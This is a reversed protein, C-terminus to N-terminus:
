RTLTYRDQYICVFVPGKFTTFNNNFASISFLEAVALPAKIDEAYGVADFSYTPEKFFSSCILQSRSLLPSPVDLGGISILTFTLGHCTDM